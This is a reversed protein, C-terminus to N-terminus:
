SLGQSGVRVSQAGEKGLGPLLSVWRAWSPSTGLVAWWHPPRPEWLSRRTHGRAQRCMQGGVCLLATNGGLARCGCRQRPGTPATGQPGYEQDLRHWARSHPSHPHTVRLRSPTIPSPRLHGRLPQPQTPGLEIRGAAETGPRKQSSPHAM